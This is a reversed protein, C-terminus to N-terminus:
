SGSPLVQGCARAAQCRGLPAVHDSTGNIGSPVAVCRRQSSCCLRKTYRRVDFGCRITKVNRMPCNAHEVETPAVHLPAVACAVHTRYFLEPAKKVAGIEHEINGQGGSESGGFARENPASCPLLEVACFLIRRHSLPYGGGRRKQCLKEGEQCPRRERRESEALRLL